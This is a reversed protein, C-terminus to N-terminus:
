EDALPVEMSGPSPFSGARSFWGPEAHLVAAAQVMLQVLAPHIDERAVLTTTTAVLRHDAPPLDAGLDVVGRPLVVKSLFAFRREYADAQTFELLRIGPTRLLMQV